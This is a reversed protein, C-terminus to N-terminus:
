GRRHFALAAVVPMLALLAVALTPLLGADSDTLLLRGLHLVILCAVGYIGVILPVRRATLRRAFRALPRDPPNPTSARV